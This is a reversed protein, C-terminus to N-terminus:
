VSSPSLHCRNAFTAALPLRLNPSTTGTRDRLSEGPFSVCEGPCPLDLGLDHLADEDVRDAGVM